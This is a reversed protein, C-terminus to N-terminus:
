IERYKGPYTKVSKTMTKQKTKSMKRLTKSNKLFFRFFKYVEGCVALHSEHTQCIIHIPKIKKGQSINIKPGDTIVAVINKDFDLGFKPM